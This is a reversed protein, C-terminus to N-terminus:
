VKVRQPTAEANVNEDKNLSAANTARILCDIDADKLGTLEVAITFYGPTEETRRVEGIEQVVGIDEVVSLKTTAIETVEETEQNKVYNRENERELEFLILVRDGINVRISTEIKLGPGGLETVTAPVFQLPRLPVDPFNGVPKNRETKNEVSRTLKREFPFLAVYAPKQVAARLFRRRNIFRVNDNHSLVMTNGDYSIVNSEFEWISAGFYYRVKWFEGFIITVPQSLQIALEVEDNKIVTAKIAETDKANQKIVDVEKGEPIQRSSLKGPNASGKSFSAAKGFGLKDRLSSLLVEMQYTENAGYKGLYDKKLKATGSDFASVMSFVSEPNRLGAKRVIELLMQREVLTLGRKQAYEAFLKFSIKKERRIRRISIALLVIILIAIAIIGTQVFWREAMFSSTNFSRAAQFKQFPTLALISIRLTTEVAHM